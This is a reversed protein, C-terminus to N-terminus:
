PLYGNKKARIRVRSANYCARCLRKGKSDIILNYGEYAHGYKCHTKQRWPRAGKGKYKEGFYGTLGRQINQKSTVPELHAPNVCAPVRCLHDLQLGAPIPGILFEYVFRHALFRVGNDYYQAYRATDLGCIWCDNQVHIRARLRAPLTEIM